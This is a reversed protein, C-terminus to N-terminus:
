SLGWIFRGWYPQLKKLSKKSVVCNVFEGEGYEGLKIGLNELFNRDDTSCAIWGKLKFM